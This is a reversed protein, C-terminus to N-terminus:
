IYLQVSVSQQQSVDIVSGVLWCQVSLVWGACGSGLIYQCGGLMLLLVPLLCTFSLFNWLCSVLWGVLGGEKM